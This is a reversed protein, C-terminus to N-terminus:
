DISQNFVDVFKKTLDSKKCVISDPHVAVPHEKDYMFPKVNLAKFAAWVDPSYALFADIRGKELKKINQEITNALSVNLGAREYRKGYPMGRRVGVKLNKLDVLSSIKENKSFIYIKATAIPKTEIYQSGFDYFNPNKNAPTLCCSTCKKFALFARAAPVTVQKFDIKQQAKKLVTDYEGMGDKQFLGPIEISLVKVQSGYTSSLAVFLTIFTLQKLSM